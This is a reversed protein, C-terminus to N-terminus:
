EKAVHRWTKGTLLRRVTCPKVGYVGAIQRSNYGRTSLRRIVVVDSETLRSNNNHSGRNM